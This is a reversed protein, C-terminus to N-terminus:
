PQPKATSQTLSKDTVAETFAVGRAMLADLHPMKAEPEGLVNGIPRMDDLAIMLVNKPRGIVGMGWFVCVFVFRRVCIPM